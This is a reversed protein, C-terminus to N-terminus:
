DRPHLDPHTDVIAQGEETVELSWYSNSYPLGTEPHIPRYVEILGADELAQWHASVQTFHRGATDRTTISCLEAIMDDTIM